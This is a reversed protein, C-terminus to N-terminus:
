ERIFGIGCMLLFGLTLVIYVICSPLTKRTPRSSIDALWLVAWSILITLAVRSPPWILGCPYARQRVYEIEIYAWYTALLIGGLILVWRSLGSRWMKPLNKLQPHYQVDGKGKIGTNLFMALCMPGSLYIGASTASQLAFGFWTQGPDVFIVHPQEFVKEILFAAFGLLFYLVTHLLVSLM